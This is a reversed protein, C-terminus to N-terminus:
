RYYRGMAELAADLVERNPRADKLIRYDDDRIEFYGGSPQVVTVRQPEVIAYQSYSGAVLWEWPKGTFLGDGTSYDGPPSSCGLLDTMLTPAVDRHATRSTVRAPERGPWHVVMPVRLQYDSFSSGYGVFGLGTDNFSQGHDASIMVVTEDLLDRRKLDDLVGGVLSDIFHLSRRYDARRQAMEDADDSDSVPAVEPYDPPYVRYNLSDYFMFGFFPQEGNRDDLWRIWRRSIERDRQYDHEYQPAEPLNPINAFVTRDLNTPRYLPKSAFIGFAYNQAELQEILVPARQVANFDSWYTSPLGYFLSFVGIRSSNGGSYHDEFVTARQGFAHINPTWPARLSDARMGDILLILLNKQKDPASCQPPKLPYQLRRHAAQNMGQLDRGERNAAMDVWGQGEFFGKATVPRYFPLYPTFSTIPVYYRADAWAHLAQSSFWSMVLLAALLVGGRGHRTALGRWILRALFTEMILFIVVYFVGFGWTKLGLISITLANLHFRNQAFVLTDLLVLALIVAALVIATGRILRPFPLLLTLPLIVLVFPLYGLLAFHGIYATITYVFDLTSDPWPLNALYRGGVLAMLAANIIFFWSAWRLLDRRRSPEQHQADTLPM